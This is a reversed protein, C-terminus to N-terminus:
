GSPAAKWRWWQIDTHMGLNLRALLDQDRRKERAILVLM